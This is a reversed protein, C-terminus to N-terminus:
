RRKKKENTVGVPVHGGQSLEEVHGIQDDFYIDAGFADVVAQKRNGSMFFAEDVNINWGQLTRIPREHAPAGRATILAIRIRKGDDDGIHKRLKALAKLFSFFPGPSMPENKLREEEKQFQHLGDQQFVRESEDGFLIADGDFAIRLINDSSDQRKGGVVHAAPIKANLAEAVDEDLASLFLHAGLPQLYTFSPSGRTFCGQTIDLKNKGIARFIRLGTVPDNRSIVSIRVLEEDKKNLSLLKKVLSFAVGCAPIDDNELRKQQEQIYASEGHKKFIKNEEEFDFLARSSVAVTLIPSKDSKSM